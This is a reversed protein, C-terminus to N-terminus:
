DFDMHRQEYTFQEQPEIEREDSPGSPNPHTADAYSQTKPPPPQHSTRVKAVRDNYRRKADLEDETLWDDQLHMECGERVECPVQMRSELVLDRWFEPASEDVGISEVTSFSDDFVVHFQPSIHGSTLNLIRPVDSSHKPSLGMFM